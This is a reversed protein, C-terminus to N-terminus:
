NVFQCKSVYVAVKGTIPGSKNSSWVVESTERNFNYIDAYNNHFAGVRIYKDSLHLLIVQAGDQVYGTARAADGFLIDVQDRNEVLTIQGNSIGDESWNPGDPNMLEDKFYYGQGKSAGCMAWVSLGTNSTLHSDASVHQGFIGFYFVLLLNRM